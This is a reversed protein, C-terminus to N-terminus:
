ATAGCAWAVILNMEPEDRPGFHDGDVWILEANPLHAVMWEAHSAPVSTDDRAQMLRTPAQVQGLDFGWEVVEALGDDVWGASGQRASERLMQEWMEADPGEVLGALADVDAFLEKWRADLVQAGAL